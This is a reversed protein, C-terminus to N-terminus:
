VSCVAQGVKEEKRKKAEYKAERVEDFIARLAVTAAQREGPPDRLLLLEDLFFELGVPFRKALWKTGSPIVTLSIRNGPRVIIRMSLFSRSRKSRNGHFSEQQFFTLTAKEKKAEIGRLIVLIVKPKLFLQGVSINGRPSEEKVEEKISVKEMADTLVLSPTNSCTVKSELVHEDKKTTPSIPLADGRAISSLKKASVKASIKRSPEMSSPPPDAVVGHPKLHFDKLAEIFPNNFLEQDCRFSGKENRSKQTQSM